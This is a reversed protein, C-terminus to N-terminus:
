SEGPHPMSAAVSEDAEDAETLIRRVQELYRKGADTTRVHRTTRTLLQVGLREELSAIARTVAPPSM